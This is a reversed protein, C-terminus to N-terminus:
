LRGFSGACIAVSSRRPGGGIVARLVGLLESYKKSKVKRPYDIYSQALNLGAFARAKKIFYRVL